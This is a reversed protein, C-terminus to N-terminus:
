EPHAEQEAPEATPGGDRGASDHQADAAPSGLLLDRGEGVWRDLIGQGLGIAAADREQLGQLTRLAIPKLLLYADVGRTVGAVASLSIEDAAILLDLHRIQSGDAVQSDAIRAQIAVARGREDRDIKPRVNFLFDRERRAADLQSLLHDHAPEDAAEYLEIKLRDIHENAARLQLAALYVFLDALDDMTTIEGTRSLKEAVLQRFHEESSRGVSSGRPGPQASAAAASPEDTYLREALRALVYNSLPIVDTKVRLRTELAARSVEGPPRRVDALVDFDITTPAASWATHTLGASLYFRASNDAFNTGEPDFGFDLYELARERALLPELLAELSHNLRGVDIDTAPGAQDGILSEFLEGGLRRLRELRKRRLDADSPRDTDPQRSRQLSDDDAPPDLQQAALPAGSAAIALVVAFRAFTLNM